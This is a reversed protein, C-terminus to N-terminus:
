ENILCKLLVLLRVLSLERLLNDDIARSKSSRSHKLSDFVKLWGVQQVLYSLSSLAILRLENIGQYVLITWLSYENLFLTSRKAVRQGACYDVLHNNLLM